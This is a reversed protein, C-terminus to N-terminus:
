PGTREAARQGAATQRAVRRRQRRTLEGPAGGGLRRAITFLILVLLVLAFGGGFARVHDNPEPSQIYYYIYLPLSTQWNAFPNANMNRAFGAVLLVPATEGIGRAMALVVATALGSRATPLVVMLVTRWQSAGLAYSAERLTGPVIRLVTEAARTVIPLMTVALALSAAFGSKPLGVTLVVFALIFLGAIVDPLSTMADVLTRVPRAARGGVEALYVAAAIGLPVSMVTSLTLQELTGVLAHAIGGQSIPSLPGAYLMTQTFFSSHRVATFGHVLTYGVQDIVIATALLGGTSLAVQVLKDRVALRDLQMSAISAYFALFLLYWCVWFGLAGTFPLVREYLVWDLALAGAAAGTLSLTGEATVGRIRLPRDAAPQQAAADQPTAIDTAM